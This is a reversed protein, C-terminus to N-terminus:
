TKELSSYAINYFTRASSLILDEVHLRARHEGAVEPGPPLQNWKETLLKALVESSDPQFYYCNPPAQERHVALDSLFIPRGVARVDEVVTSWGEFLSPQVVAAACRLIGIQDTRNILGLLHVQDRLGHTDLVEMLSAFHSENRRDQTAGTCVLPIILNQEHRLQALAKFVTIHNKHSWFQNPLYLYKEPLNYTQRLQDASLHGVSLLSHFHWVRPTAQHEPYFREFDEKATYSSLVVVGPKSAIEGIAADRAAIEESSFLHPLYRHQFDPIWRITIAGPIKAGFGPYIVDVKESQSRSFGLRHVLRSFRSQSQVQTQALEPQQELLDAIVSPAGLLKLNPRERAPLRALCIALNRLYLTGGMWGPEDIIEIGITLPHHMM